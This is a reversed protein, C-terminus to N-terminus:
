DEWLPNEINDDEFCEAYGCVSYGINQYVFRRDEETFIGNGVMYAIENLKCDILKSRDRNYRGCIYYDIIKNEPLRQVGHEDIVTIIEVGNIKIPIKDGPKVKM